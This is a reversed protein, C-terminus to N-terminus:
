APPSPAHPAVRCWALSDGLALYYSQPTQYVPRQSTGSAVAGPLALCLSIAMGVLLVVAAGLSGGSRM